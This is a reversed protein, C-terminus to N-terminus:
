AKDFGLFICLFKLSQVIGLSNHVGGFYHLMLEDLINFVMFLPSQLEATSCQNQLGATMLEFRILAEMKRTYSLKTSCRSAMCFTAPEIGAVREM